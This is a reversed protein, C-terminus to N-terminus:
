CVRKLYRRTEGIGLNNALNQLVRPNSAARYFVDYLRPLVPKGLTMWLALM